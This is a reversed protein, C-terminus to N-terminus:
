KVKTTSNTVADQKTLYYNIFGYIFLMYIFASSGIGVFYDEGLNMLAYVVLYGALILPVKHKQTFSTIISLFYMLLSLVTFVIGMNLVFRIYCNHMNGTGAIVENADMGNGWWMNNNIAFYAGKWIDKRGSDAAAGSLNEFRGLVFSLDLFYSVITFLLILLVISRIFSKLKNFYELIFILLVGVMANRSGAFLMTLFIAVGIIYFWRKNVSQSQNVLFLIVLWFVTSIGYANSNNVFGSFRHGSLVLHGNLLVSLFIFFAICYIFFKTISRNRMIAYGIIPPLLLSLVSLSFFRIYDVGEVLAYCFQVFYFLSIFYVPTTIRFGKKTNLYLISVGALICFIIWRMVSAITLTIPPLTRITLMETMESNSISMVFPALAFLMIVLCQVLNLHNLKLM